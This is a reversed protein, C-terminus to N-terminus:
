NNIMEKYYNIILFNFNGTSSTNINDMQYKLTVKWLTNESISGDDNTIKTSFKVETHDNFFNISSVDITKITNKQYKLVPSNVNNLSMDNEFKKYEVSNSNNNIYQFQEILKSYDYSERAIVYDEIFIKAIANSVSNETDNLKTIISKMQDTSDIDVKYMLQKSLPLISVINLLSTAFLALFITICIIYSSKELIPFIFIENYWNISNKYYEGNKLSENLQLKDIEEM